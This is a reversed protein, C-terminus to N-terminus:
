GLAILAPLLLLQHLSLPVLRIVGDWIGAFGKASLLSPLVGMVGSSGQPVNVQGPWQGGQCFWLTDATGVRTAPHAHSFWRPAQYFVVFRFGGWSELQDPAPGSCWCKQTGWPISLPPRPQSSPLQTLILGSHTAQLMLVEWLPESYSLLNSLNVELRCCRQSQMVSTQAWSIWGPSFPAQDM